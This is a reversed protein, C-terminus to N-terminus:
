RDMAPEDLWVFHGAPARAVWGALELCALDGLLAPVERGTREVLDDLSRPGGGAMASELYNYQLLKSPLMQPRRKAPAQWGVEDLIDDVTEVLRAGDKILAHCGRHRGSAVGGPVALVDRGQELAARATILSGSRESAEVIVVARSLGSIIRNRLPFHHPLPPAGPPFESLIAGGQELLRAALDRHSPPYIKDAGCGLVAVTAGGGELAGEHAAGDIGRALGSVVVLGARTLDRGLRRSAALGAPSADRSGVVAVATAAPAPLRGRLWLALPPDPIAALLTPYWPHGLHLVTLGLRASELHVMEARRRLRAARQDIEDAPTGLRGLLGEVTAAGPREVHLDRFLRPGRTDGGLRAFTLALANLEDLLPPWRSDAM